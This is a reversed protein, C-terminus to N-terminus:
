DEQDHPAQPGVGMAGEYEYIRYTKQLIAGGRELSTRSLNNDELVWSFEAEEIGWRRARKELLALLALGIGWQQYEPVVNTSIARVKTIAERNRLLYIFGLPFLRGNIKKIRPNYDPLALMAGVAKGDIEAIATLEPVILYKLAAGIHKAEGDSLPVAGWTNVLSRNYVDLFLRVDKAFRRRDMHRLSLGFREVVHKSLFELKDDLLALMEVKGWFAFADKVKRYGSQEILAAYYPPNYTMDICPPADFGDVLLGITYNLSPNVPGRMKTIGKAALWERGASLLGDAVELDDVSEFFGFFGDTAKHRRNHAHNVVALIRGAPRGQKIALFTQGDADDYFPHRALGVLEKQNQRLPPVWNPDGDYLQWPLNLFQKRHRRNAVPLIELDPM